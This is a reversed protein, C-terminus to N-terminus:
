TEEWPQQILEMTKRAIKEKNADSFTFDIGFQKLMLEALVIQSEALTMALEEDSMSRIHDATTVKAPSITTMNIPEKFVKQHTRGLAYLLPNEAVRYAKQYEQRVMLIAEELNM